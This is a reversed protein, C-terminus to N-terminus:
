NMETGIMYTSASQPLSTTQKQSRRQQSRIQFPITLHLGDSSLKVGERDSSLALQDQVTAENLEFLFACFFLSNIRICSFYSVLIGHTVFFQYIDNFIIPKPTILKYKRPMNSFVHYFCYNQFKLNVYFGCFSGM